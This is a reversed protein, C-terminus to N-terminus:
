NKSVTQAARIVNDFLACITLPGVGGVRPTITVDDREYVDDAVDGVLKGGESAVAADVIVAKDKLMSSTILGPKGVASIVVDAGLIVSAPNKTDEDVVEFDYNAAELMKKLPQGVLRGLGVLVIHKDKLEINYGALLWLIAMPTAPEFISHPSLADVDKKGSIAEVVEDTKVSDPLPLQVIIGHISSDENLKKITGLADEQDIQHVAVEVGIDEGYKQKLSIYKLIVPNDSCSVIALKPQVKQSQKLSRVQFAQREKIFGAIESGNLLKV